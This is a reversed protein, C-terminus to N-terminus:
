TKSFTDTDIKQPGITLGRTSSFFLLGSYLPHVFRYTVGRSTLVLVRQKNKIVGDNDKLDKVTSKSVSKYVSAM